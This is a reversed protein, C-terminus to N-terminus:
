YLKKLATNKNSVFNLRYFFDVNKHRSKDFKIIIHISVYICFQFYKGNLLLQPHYSQFMSLITFADCTHKTEKDHRSFGLYGAHRPFYIGSAPLLIESIVFTSLFLFTFNHHYM